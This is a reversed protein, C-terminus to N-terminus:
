AANPAQANIKRAKPGVVAKIARSLRREQFRAFHRLFHELIEIGAIRIQV